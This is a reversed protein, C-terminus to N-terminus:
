SGGTSDAPNTLLTADKVMLPPITSVVALHRQPEPPDFLYWGVLRPQAPSYKGAWSPFPSVLGKVLRPTTSLRLLAGPTEV